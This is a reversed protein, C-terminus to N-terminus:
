AQANKKQRWHRIFERNDFESMHPGNHVVLITIKETYKLNKLLKPTIVFYQSTGERCATHVLIEFARRENIPDMGQNIEDVVRFPCRNLEQLAMLYLMTSMSREGGSQHFRTLEHLQSSEHFKVRITIGYKDYEEENEIHLDVEGVCKMARFFDSFKDNIQEVLQKLPNLWSEKAQLKKKRLSALAANKEILEQELEKIEQERKKCEEVVKKSLGPFCDARAQQENLMAELENLTDPLTNFAKPLAEDPQMGCKKMLEKCRKTLQVTSEELQRCQEKLAEFRSTDERCANEVKTKEALLGVVELELYVKEMTLKAQLKIQELLATVMSKKQSKVSILKKKTEAEAKKLDIRSNSLHKLRDQKIKLKQELHRKKGKLESLTKKESLLENDRRDLVTSEKQISNLQEDINRLRSQCVKMQQELQRKLEADVTVSLYKPPNVTTNRTSTLKSYFSQKMEYKQDGAYLVRINRLEKTIETIMSETKENGIPIEHVKLQMCLYSMVEEPADFTDRLYTFFGFRRLSEIPQSSPTRACSEAPAVIANVRLRMNDRVEDMFKKMDDKRQFVFARLDNFSIHSELYKAFRIDKMNIVLMLPEFINGAFLHRNQRLWQVAAFTDSHCRRLNEEKVKMMNNMDSLKKELMRLEATLNGKERCMNAKEEEVKGREQLIQRLEANVETIRPTVDPQNEIKALEVKLNEIEKKMKVIEKKQDEEETQKMKFAHKIDEIEQNSKDLQDQKQKHKLSTERIATSQTNIKADNSTLQMAISQRKSLMPTQNKKLIALRQKVENREKKVGELERLSTEYEVWLKKKELLQIMELHKQKEYYHNEDVKNTEYIQKTKELYSTREKIANEMETEKIRVNKLDCHYEFMEPPGVSKETAELLEIKSMKAFQGVKEQPLFQCLNNVQIHLAKVEEEVIKQNCSRGNVRWVSQNNAAYIERNIIVNGGSKFLEIEVFGRDHGRKVYGGVKDGRDLLTTKGALSLCIACVISSKGTGNAGIVMNLNPGPHVTTYDYTLFNKMTIRLIAGEVFVGDKGAESPQCSTSVSAPSSQDAHNKRIRKPVLAM